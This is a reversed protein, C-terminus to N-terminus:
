APILGDHRLEDLFQSHPITEESKRDAVAALDSLDEILQEYDTISLLVGTKDGAENTLYQVSAPM